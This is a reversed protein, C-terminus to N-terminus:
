LFVLNSYTSNIFYNFENENHERELELELELELTNTNLETKEQCMKLFTM